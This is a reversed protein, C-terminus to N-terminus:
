KTNGMSGSFAQKILYKEAFEDSTLDAFGNMELEYTEEGAAYKLNHDKM